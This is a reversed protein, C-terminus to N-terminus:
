NSKNTFQAFKPSFQLEFTGVPGNRHKLISIQTISNEINKEEPLKYYDENYLMCVLDADQEISNHVIINNAIFNNINYMEIDYVIDVEVLNILIIKEFITTLVLSKQPKISYHKNNNHISNQEVSIAIKDMIKLINCRKWGSFSKFKHNATALVNYGSRTIIKYVLKKKNNKVKNISSLVLNKNENESYITLLKKQLLQKILVKNQKTEILTNKSVCGSERLDSLIPRKNNRSEVNRSLQSLVIIVINFERALIKLSRTILSLEQSRNNINKNNEILQLYDIIVLGLNKNNQIFYKIKGRLTALTIKPTDDIYLNLDSLNETAIKIKEWEINNLKGSRLKNISVQTESTIIRYILQQSPMELSFFAVNIDTAKTINMAINLALATKGMAPRSAIIILDSRHFGSTLNDFEEFGSKISKEIQDESNRSITTIFDELLYSVKLKKNVTKYNTNILNLFNNFDKLIKDISIAENVVLNVLSASNEIICRRLFKDLLLHTYEEFSNNDILQNGLKKIESEEGLHHLLKNKTLINILILFDITQLNKYAKEITIYIKKHEEKYFTNPTLINVREDLLEPNSILSALVLREALISHPVEFNRELQNM